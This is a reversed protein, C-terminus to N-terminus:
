TIQAGAFSSQIIYYDSTNWCWRTFANISWVQLNNKHEKNFLLFSISTQKGGKIQCLVQMILFSFTKILFRFIRVILLILLKQHVNLFYISYMEEKVFWKLSARPSATYWKLVFLSRLLYFFDETNSHRRCCRNMYDWSCRKCYDYFLREAKKLTSNLDLTGQLSCLCLASMLVNIYLVYLLYCHAIVSLLVKCVQKCVTHATRWRPVKVSVEQKRFPHCRLHVARFHLGSQPNATTIRFQQRFM